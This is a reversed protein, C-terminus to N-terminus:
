KGTIRACSAWRWMPCTMPRPMTCRDLIKQTRHFVPSSGFGCVPADSARGEAAIRTRRIGDGVGREPSQASRDPTSSMVHGLRLANGGPLEEGHLTKSHAACTFGLHDREEDSTLNRRSDVM